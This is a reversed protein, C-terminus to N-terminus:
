AEFGADSLAPFRVLQITEREANILLCAEVEFASAYELLQRRTARNSLDASANTGKIEVLFDMGRKRVLADARLQFSRRVGDVEVIGESTPQAEILEFGARELLELAKEEGEVGLRRNRAMRRRSKRKAVAIGLAIGIVLLLLGLAAWSLSSSDTLFAIPSGIM